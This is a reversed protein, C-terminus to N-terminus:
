GAKSSPGPCFIKPYPLSTKMVEQSKQSVEYFLAEKEFNEQLEGWEVHCQFGSCFDPFMCEVNNTSHPSPNPRDLNFFFFGWSHLLTRLSKDM